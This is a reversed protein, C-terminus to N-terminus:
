RTLVSFDHLLLKSERYILWMETLQALLVLITLITVTLYVIYDIRIM